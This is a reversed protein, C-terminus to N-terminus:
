FPYIGNIKLSHAWSDWLECLNGFINEEGEEIYIKDYLLAGSM